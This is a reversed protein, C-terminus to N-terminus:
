KPPKKRAKTLDGVGARALEAERKTAEATALHRGIYAQLDGFPVREGTKTEIDNRLRVLAGAVNDMLKLTADDVRLLELVPLSLEM